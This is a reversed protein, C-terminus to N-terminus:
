IALCSSQLSTTQPDQIAFGRSFKLEAELIYVNQTKSRQYWCARLISQAPNNTMSRIRIFAPVGNVCNYQSNDELFTQIRMSLSSSFYTRQCLRIRRCRWTQFCPLGLRPCASKPRWGQPSTWVSRIHTTLSEFTIFDYWMTFCIKFYHKYWNVSMVNRTPSVRSGTQATLATRAALDKWWGWGLPMRTVITVSTVITVITIFLQVKLHLFDLLRTNLM